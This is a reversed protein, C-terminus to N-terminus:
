VIWNVILAVLVSMVLIYATLGAGALIAVRVLKGTVNEKVAEVKEKAADVKEHVADAPADKVTTAGLAVDEQVAQVGTKVASAGAAVVDSVATVGGDDDPQEQRSETAAMGAQEVPSPAVSRRRGLLGFAVTALLAVGTVSVLGNRVRHRPRPNIRETVSDRAAGLRRRAESAQDEVILQAAEALSVM